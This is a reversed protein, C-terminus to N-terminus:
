AGWSILMANTVNFGGLCFGLNSARCYAQYIRTGGSITHLRTSLRTTATYTVAPAM